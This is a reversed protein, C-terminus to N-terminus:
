CYSSIKAIIKAVTPRYHMLHVDYAVLINLIMPVNNHSVCAAYNSKRFVICVVICPHLKNTATALYPDPHCTARVSM